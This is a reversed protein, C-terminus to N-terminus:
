MQKESTKRCENKAKGMELTDETKVRFHLRNFGPQWSILQCYMDNASM